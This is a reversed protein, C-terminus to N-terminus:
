GRLHPRELDRQREEREEESTGGALGYDDVDSLYRVPSASQSPAKKGAANSMITNLLSFSPYSRLYTVIISSGKSSSDKKSSGEKSGVTKSKDVDKKSGSGTDKSSKSTSASPEGATFLFDFPLLIWFNLWQRVQLITILQLCNGSDKNSKTREYYHLLTNREGKKSDDKRIGQSSGPM